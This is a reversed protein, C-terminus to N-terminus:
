TALSMAHLESVLVAFNLQTVAWIIVAHYALLTVPNGQQFSYSLILLLSSLMVM